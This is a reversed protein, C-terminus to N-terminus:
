EGVSPPSTDIFLKDKCLELAEADSFGAKKLEGYKAFQAKATFTFFPIIESIDAIAKRMMEKNIVDTVAKPLKDAAM